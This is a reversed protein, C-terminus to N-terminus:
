RLEPKSLPFTPVWFDNEPEKQKRQKTRTARSKPKASAGPKAANEQVSALKAAEQAYEEAARELAAKTAAERDREAQLIV